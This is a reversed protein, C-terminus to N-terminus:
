NKNTHRYFNIYDEIFIDDIMKQTMRLIIGDNNKKFKYLELNNQEHAPSNNTIKCYFTDNFLFDGYKKDYQRPKYIMSSSNLSIIYSEDGEFINKYFNHKLTLEKYLEQEKNNLFTGFGRSIYKNIINILNNKGYFYKYDINMFTKHAILCSTTMYVNEGDYYARVCPLHFVKVSNIFDKQPVFLELDRELYPSTINYKINFQMSYDDQQKERYNLVIDKFEFYDQCILVIDKINKKMYKIKNAHFEKLDDIFLEIINDQQLLDQLDCQTDVYTINNDDLTSLLKKRSIGCFIKKNIIYNVVDSDYYEKTKSQIHTFLLNCKTLFDYDDNSQVMIDVDSNYYYENFYRIMLEDGTEKFHHLLPHFNQLCAAMISGCIAMNNKKLDFDNLLYKDTNGCIFLKMYKTFTELNAINVNKKNYHNINDKTYSTNIPVGTPYNFRVNDKQVICPYYVSEFLNNKYDVPLYHACNITIVSDHDLTLHDTTIEKNYMVIIAYNLYYTSKFHYQGLEFRFYTRFMTKIIEEDKMILGCYYPNILLSNYLKYIKKIDEISVDKKKNIDKIFNDYDQSYINQKETQTDTILSDQQYNSVSSTVNYYKLLLNRSNFKNSTYKVLKINTPLKYLNGNFKWYDIGTLNKIYTFFSIGNQLTVNYQFYKYIKFNSILKKLTFLETKASDIYTQINLFSINPIFSIFNHNNISNTDLDYGFLNSQNIYKNNILVINSLIIKETRFKTKYLVFYKMYQQLETPNNKSSLIYKSYQINDDNLPCLLYIYEDKLKEQIDISNIEIVNNDDDIYKIIPRSIFPNQTVQLAM